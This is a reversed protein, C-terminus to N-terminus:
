RRTARHGAAGQRLLERAPAHTRRPVHGPARDAGRGGPRVRRRAFRTGRAPDARAGAPAQLRAVACDELPTRVTAAITPLDATAIFFMLAATERLARRFDPATTSQDRLLGLKVQVLPHDIVVLRRMSSFASSFCFAPLCFILPLADAPTAARAFNGGEWGEADKRQRRRSRTQSRLRLIMRRRLCRRRLVPARILFGRRPQRRGSSGEVASASESREPHCLKLPHREGAVRMGCETCQVERVRIEVVAPASVAAAAGREAAPVGAARGRGADGRAAARRGAVGALPGVSSGARRRRAAAPQAM